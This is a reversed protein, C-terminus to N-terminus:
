ILDGTTQSLLWKKLWYILSLASNPFIAAISYLFFLIYLLPAIYQISIIWHCYKKKWNWQKKFFKERSVDAFVNLDMRVYGISTMFNNPWKHLYKNAMSVKIHLQTNSQKSKQKPIRQYKNPSSDILTSSDTTFTGFSNNYNDLYTYKYLM